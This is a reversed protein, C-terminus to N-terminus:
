VHDLDIGVIHLSVRFPVLRGCGPCREPRHTRGEDDVFALDHWTRCVACGKPIRAELTELRPGVKM